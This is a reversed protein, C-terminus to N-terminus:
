LYFILFLKLVIKEGEVQFFFYKENPYLFETWHSLM